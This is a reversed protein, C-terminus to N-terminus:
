LHTRNAGPLHSCEFVSFDVAVHQLTHRDGQGHHIQLFSDHEPAVSRFPKGAMQPMFYDSMGANRFREQM